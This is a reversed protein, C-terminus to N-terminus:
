CTCRTHVIGPGSELYESRTICAASFGSSQGFLSGGVWPALNDRPGEVKVTVADNDATLAALEKHVRASMGPFSMSGGTLLVRGYLQPALAPECASVAAHVLTHVGQADCLGLFSPQFLAEPCRFREAALRCLYGGGPSEYDRQFAVPNAQAAQVEADFDLAVYCLSEVISRRVDQWPRGTLESFGGEVLLKEMWDVLDNGAFELRLMAHPIPHGAVIPVACTVGAGSELVIGSLPNSSVTQITQITLAASSALYVAPVKFIDFFVQLLKERNAKPNMPPEVLIVPRKEPKVRLSFMADRWIREMNDWDTIIGREVSHCVRIRGQRAAVAFPVSERDGIWVDDESPLGAMGSLGRPVYPRGVANLILYSPAGEGSIGARFWRSGSEIVIAETTDDDSGDDSDDGDSM